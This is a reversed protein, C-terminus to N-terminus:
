AEGRTWGFTREAQPNWEEVIGSADIVVVAEPAAGIMRSLRESSERLARETKKHEAVEEGLLTNTRLLEDTRQAIRRELEQNLSCIKQQAEVRETIDEAVGTVRYVRGAEDRIPFARDRVWRITGDPRVVRYEEDYTGHIQKELSQLVRVRDDPHIAELFSTPERYLSDVSRGWV